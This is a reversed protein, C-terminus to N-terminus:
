RDHNLIRRFFDKLKMLTIKDNNINYKYNNQKIITIKNERLGNLEENTIRTTWKSNWMRKYRWAKFGMHEKINMWWRLYQFPGGIIDKIWSFRM